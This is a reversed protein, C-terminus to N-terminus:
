SLVGQYGWVERKQRRWVARISIDMMRQRQRQRDTERDRDTETETQRDTERERERREREEGCIKKQNKLKRNFKAYIM